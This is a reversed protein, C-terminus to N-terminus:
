LSVLLGVNYLKTPVLSLGALRYLEDELETWGRFRTATMAGNIEKLVARNTKSTVGLPRRPFPVRGDAGDIVKAMTM